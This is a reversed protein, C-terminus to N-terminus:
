LAIGRRPGSVPTFPPEPGPAMSGDLRSTASRRCPRRWDIGLAVLQDLVDDADMESLRGIAQCRVGGLRAVLRDADAAAGAESRRDSSACDCPRSVVEGEDTLEIRYTVAGWYAYNKARGHAQASSVRVAMIPGYDTLIDAVIELNTAIM